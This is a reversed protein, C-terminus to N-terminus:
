VMVTRALFVQAALDEDELISLNLHEYKLKPVISLLAFKM